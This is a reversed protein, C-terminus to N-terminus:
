TRDNDSRVLYYINLGDDFDSYDKKRDIRYVLGKHRIKEGAKFDRYCYLKRDEARYEGDEATKLEQFTLPVVAGNFEEESTVEENYEGDDGYFGATKLYVPPYREYKKILGKFNFLGM